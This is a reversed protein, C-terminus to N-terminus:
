EMKADFILYDMAELKYIFNGLDLCYKEIM